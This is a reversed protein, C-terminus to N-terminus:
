YLFQAVRTSYDFLRISCDNIYFFRVLANRRVLLKHLDTIRVVWIIRLCKPLQVLNM